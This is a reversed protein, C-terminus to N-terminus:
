DNVQEIWKSKIRDLSFTSKNAKTVKIKDLKEVKRDYTLLGNMENEVDTWQTYVAGSSGKPQYKEVILQIFNLYEETAAEKNEYNHHVWPGDIDWIHNEVKYGIAGYEGNVTARKDSVLSISPPRYSHNDKIHGVEFDIDPEGADVGSNGTVLRSPDLEMVFNTLRKVDYIGWHENFVVWNVVSPHNWHQKVMQQLENEFQIKEQDTRMKFTSPMDQWVLLGIKDCHYFWRQPEIKIHKRVMNFGWDKINQVEWKLAEDSPATYIGDPWYGQDLPGFQYLFENNLALRMTEYRPKLSIKRMGFYGIVEDLIVEEKKLRIELDYLHPDDPSWLHPKPLGIEFPIHCKGTVTKILKGKELIAIEAQIDSDINNADVTITITENDIDPVAHYATLFYKGVPELWVSQWIGSSPSYAYKQPDFYRSNNQKGYAIAQDDGPDFVHVILEQTGKPKLFPTINFSFADFGGKHNGAFKGNIFVSAEYDVAAFHLIIDQSKWLEPIEFKRKYWARRMDLQEKIGSLASEWPFPVMIRKALNVSTPLPDGPQAKQFEWVGNLDQWQERVMNPRPYGMDINQATLNTGWSTMLPAQKKSYQQQGYCYTAMIMLVYLKLANM